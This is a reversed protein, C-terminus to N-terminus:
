ALSGVVRIRQQEPMESYSLIHLDPLSPRLLRSMWGRLGEPVLLVAPEGAQQRAKLNSSASEHMREVVGPEMVDNRAADHLM